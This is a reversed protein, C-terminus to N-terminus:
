DMNENKVECKRYNKFDNRVCEYAMFCINIEPHYFECTKCKSSNRIIDGLIENVRADDISYLEYEKPLYGKNPNRSCNKCANPGQLAPLACHCVTITEIM